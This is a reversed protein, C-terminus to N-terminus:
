TLDLIQNYHQFSSDIFIIILLIIFRPLEFSNKYKFDLTYLKRSYESSDPSILDHGYKLNSKVLELYIGTLQQKLYEFIEQKWYTCDTESLKNKNFVPLSNLQRQEETCWKSMQFNLSRICLLFICLQDKEVNRFFESFYWLIYCDKFTLVIGCFDVLQDIPWEKILRSKNLKM